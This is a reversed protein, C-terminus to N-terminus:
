QYMSVPNVSLAPFHWFFFLKMSPRYHCLLAFVVSYSPLDKHAFVTYKRREISTSVSIASIRVHMTYLLIPSAM